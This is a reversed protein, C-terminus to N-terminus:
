QGCSPLRGAGPVPPASLALLRVQDGQSVGEAEAPVVALAEARALSAVLHSGSGLHHAPAVWLPQSTPDCSVPSAEQGAAAQPASVARVALHQRRGAPSRWATAARALAPTVPRTAPDADCSTAVGDFGGLRALAPVVILTFSVLVSVPNGPLMLIPVERGPGAQADQRTHLTGHGQPKGPQMAVKAFSLEAGAMARLRGPDAQGLMKLPDFAGASVGGSTLVLDAQGAAEALVTELSEVTDAARATFTVRGGAEEVLGALLLSNSDPITGPRLTDEPEVLESGTSVVAVRVRPLVRVRSRGVSALASIATASLLTGAGLVPDGVAVDEGATRVSLGVCAEARIAVQSPLPHHGAQQDTDEVKVVADAGEPLMAGTMIRMATGAQLAPPVAGAPVDGTVALMVPTSTTAGATDAARLAYGDMASNTWPPVPLAATVDEALVLGHAQALPLEVSALPRLPALVKAVYDEVPIMQPM